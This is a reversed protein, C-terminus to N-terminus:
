TRTMTSLSSKPMEIWIEEGGIETASEIPLTIIFTSGVGNETRVTITGGHAEVIRKCIALGFGMGQAKTTFLPSFLNPLVNDPIGPGTDSFAIELSGNVEESSITLKGVNSMAENANKILNIFVRKIKVSDVKIRTADSVCNVIEIKEPMNMMSLSEDILKRPSCEQLELHIKRSYDLLDNVIKNSYDVCKDIIDLMEKSQAEPIEKGKKKLFYASNKIGTLPNRLDHGIMGALEGIAALRESKVLKEQIQKLQETRQRVVDELRQSYKSLEGQLKKIETIDHYVCHLFTKGALEITRSTVLINRIEGNKTRHLTEFEEGNDKLMKAIHLRTEEALEKAEIDRITLQRFEERSYGLQLHATDNFEVFAATEPDVVLVGLPAENFLLHYRQEMERLKQESKKRDTVDKVLGVANWKGSLKIPSISLEAPFESGDKRRGLLEVKGFTFYGTGAEKFVKVSTDIREKAEESMRAPVVLKHVYKGFAEPGSYGFMKAAAPNWYTVKMEENVVIIADRISNTISQFKEESEFVDQKVKRQNESNETNNQVVALRLLQGEKEIQFSKITLCRTKGNKDVVISEYASINSNELKDKSKKAWLSKYQNNLFGLDNFSKGILQEKAYGSYKGAFSNAAIIIEV